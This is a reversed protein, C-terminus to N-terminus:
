YEDPFLVTTYSRDAETIIWIKDEPSSPVIYASFIRFGATVSLENEAKDAPDLDGWDGSLHRRLSAMFFRAFDSSDAVRDRIGPTMLLVGGHFIGRSIIDPM